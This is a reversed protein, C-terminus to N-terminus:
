YHYIHLYFLSYTGSLDIGYNDSELGDDFDVDVDDTEMGLEDSSPPLPCSFLSEGRQLAAQMEEYYDAHLFTRASAAGHRLEEIPFYSEDNEVDDNVPDMLPPTADDFM